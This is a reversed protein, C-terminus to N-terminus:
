WSRTPTVGVAAPDAEPAFPTGAQRGVSRRLRYERSRRCVPQGEFRRRHRAALLVARGALRIGGDRGAVAGQGVDVHVTVRPGLGTGIDNSAIGSFYEGVYIIDEAGSTDIDLAAARSLNVWQTEFKGESSFVQVRHNERDAVYVWGDRGVKVNHVVNFQGEGTGSEGWSLILRGEPSFKHVSANSYGDAVYFEGTRADVGVHCPVSFPKGSM